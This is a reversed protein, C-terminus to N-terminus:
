VQVTRITADSSMMYVLVYEVWCAHFTFIGITTIIPRSMPLVILRYIQLYTAGDIRAAQIIENEISRVFSAALYVAFSINFAIYPIIIGLYTNTLGLYNAAIFIPVISSSITVLLGLVILAFWFPTLRSPIKTFAFAASISLLVVAMTTVVCFILSNVFLRSFEGLQWAQVYNRVTWHIPLAVMSTLIEAQPKFSTYTLWILPLLTFVSFFSLVAYAAISFPVPM